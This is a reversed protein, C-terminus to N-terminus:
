PLVVTAYRVEALPTGDVVVSTGGPHGWRAGPQVRGDFTITLSSAGEPPAFTWSIRDGDQWSGTPEPDLGHEDALGFWAATSVVDFSPPLPRGDTTAIRAEWVVALGGRTVASHTVELDLGGGSATATAVRDGLVGLLGAAVLLAVVAITARRGWLGARARDLPLLDDGRVTPEPPVVGDPQDPLRAM